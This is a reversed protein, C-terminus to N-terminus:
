KLFKSSYGWIRGLNPTSRDELEFFQVPCIQGGGWFFVSDIKVIFPKQKLISCCISLIFCTVIADIMTRCGVLIKYLKTGWSQSSTRVFNGRGWVLRSFPNFRGAGATARRWFHISPQSMCLVQFRSEFMEGVM